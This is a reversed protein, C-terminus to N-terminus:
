ENLHQGSNALLNESTNKLKVSTNSKCVRKLTQLSVSGICNEVKTEKNASLKNECKAM